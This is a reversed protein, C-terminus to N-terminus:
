RELKRPPDPLSDIVRRLVTFAQEPRPGLYPVALCVEFRRPGWAHTERALALSRPMLCKDNLDRSEDVTRPKEGDAQPEAVWSVHASPGDAEPNPRDYSMKPTASYMVEYGWSNTVHFMLTYGVLQQEEETLKEWIQHALRAISPELACIWCDPMLVGQEAGLCNSRLNKQIDDVTLLQPGLSPHGCNPHDLKTRCQPCDNNYHPSDMYGFLCKHGGFHGCALIIVGACLNEDETDEISLPARCIICETKINNIQNPDAYLIDRVAPWFSSDIPPVDGSM